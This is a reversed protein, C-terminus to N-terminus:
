DGGVQLDRLAPHSRDLLSSWEDKYFSRFLLQMNDKTPEELLKLEYLCWMDFSETITDLLKCIETLM